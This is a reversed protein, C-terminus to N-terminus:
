EPDPYGFAAHLQKSLAAVTNADTTTVLNVNEFKDADTWPQDDGLHDYLEAARLKGWTCPAGSAGLGERSTGNSVRPSSTAAEARQSCQLTVFLHCRCRVLSCQFSQLCMCCVFQGGRLLLVFLSHTGLSLGM